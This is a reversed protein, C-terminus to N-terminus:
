LIQVILSQSHFSCPQHIISFLLFFKATTIQLIISHYATATPWSFQSNLVSQETPIAQCATWETFQIALL